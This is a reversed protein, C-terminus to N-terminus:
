PGDGELTSRPGGRGPGGMSDTTPSALRRRMASWARPAVLLLSGGLVVLLLPDFSSHIRAYDGYGGLTTVALAYLGLLAVAGMAEVRDGPSTRRRALLALWPVAVLPFLVYLSYVGLSAARLSELPAGFPGDPRIASITQFDDAVYGLSSSSFLVPVSRALFELPHRAIVATAFAGALAGHRAALQPASGLLAWPGAKGQALYGGVLRAVAAYRAPAQDQMRYQMVKGLLNVNEVMTVGAYGNVVANRHVFLGLALYLAATAALAHPWLRRLAGHRAALTMLLAFLPVPAYIWEPRTMFLALLVGAVLWLERTRLTRLFVVAALALSVVLWLALGDSIIPKVYKLLYVNAGVLLGVAFAMWARRLVLAGLAFVELTAVVFLAGQVASVAAFDEGGRLAFVLAMLLPYGPLRLADVVGGGALIRRCVAIYGNSDPYLEVQPHNLYYAAVIGATIVGLAAGFPLLRAGRWDAVVARAIRRATRRPGRPARAGEPSARAGADPPAFTFPRHDSDM